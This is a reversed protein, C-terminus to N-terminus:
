SADGKTSQSEQAGDRQLDQFFMAKAAPSIIKAPGVGILDYTTDLMNFFQERDAPKM